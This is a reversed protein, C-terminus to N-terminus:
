LNNDSPLEDDSPQKEQDTPPDLLVSGWKAVSANLSQATALLRNRTDAVTTIQKEVELSDSLNVLEGMLSQGGASLQQLVRNCASLSALLPEVDVKATAVKERDSTRAFGWWTLAIMISAATVLVVFSLRRGLPERHKMALSTEGDVSSVRALIARPLPVSNPASHLTADARLRDQLAHMDEAYKALQPDQRVLQQVWAPLPRDTDALFSIIWRAITRKM